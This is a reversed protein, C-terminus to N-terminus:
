PASFKSDIQGHRESAGSESVPDYASDVDTIPRGYTVSVTSDHDFKITVSEVEELTAVSLGLVSALKQIDM